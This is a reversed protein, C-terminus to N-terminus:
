ASFAAVVRVTRDVIKRVGERFLETRPLLSVVVHGDADFDYFHGPHVLVGDERLLRLAWGEDSLISPLRLIAYWGGEIALRVMSADAANSGGPAASELLADLERLNERLRQRIQPQIATRFDMLRPLAWAVPTSVSLYTDAILELRAIAAIVLREPGTVVIWACKMQPLASIKSIGSLAFSLIRKEGAFSPARAACAGPHSYDWFVEDSILALDHRECLTVLAEVDDQHVYSGTPNNPHVALIARTRSTIASALAAQDIRWGDEYVLPYRLADLDNLQTLFALLPYGPRPVLVEDGPNALLRFLFSYAESTSATLFIQAPDLAAGREAYYRTVAERGERLGRADPEYRLARPNRLDELLAPDYDFGCRTPNSETLDLVPLARRRREETLRTLENIELSWNTRHSFM